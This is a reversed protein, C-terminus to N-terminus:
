YKRWMEYDDCEDVMIGHIAKCFLRDFKYDPQYRWDRSDLKERLTLYQLYLENLRTDIIGFDIYLYNNCYEFSIQLIEFKDIYEKSLFKEKTSYTKGRCDHPKFSLKSTNVNYFPCLVVVEKICLRISANLIKELEALYDSNLFDKINGYTSQSVKQDHKKFEEFFCVHHVTKDFREFWEKIKSPNKFNEEGKFKSRVYKFTTLTDGICVPNEAKIM